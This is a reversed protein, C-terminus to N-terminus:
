ENQGWPSPNTSTPNRRAIERLMASMQQKAMKKAFGSAMFNPAWSPIEVDSEYRILCSSAQEVFTTSSSIKAEDTPRSESRISQPPNLTLDRDSAYRKHFIGFNAVGSQHLAVRFGDASQSTVRSTEIGPLFSPFAEYDTFVAWAKACSTSTKAEISADVFSGIIKISPEFVAYGTPLEAYAPLALSISLCALLAAKKSFFMPEM